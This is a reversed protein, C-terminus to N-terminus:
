SGEAIKNALLGTAVLTAAPLILATQLGLLNTLGSMLMRGVMYGFAGIVQMQSIARAASINPIRYALIAFAPPMPAICLGIVFYQLSMMVLVWSSSEIHLLHILQPAILYVGGGILGGTRVVAVVGLRDIRKGVTFRGIIQGLAFFTYGLAASSISVRYKEHLLISSWDGVSSESILSLASISALLAVIPNLKYRGGDQPRLNEPQSLVHHDTSSPLLVLTSVSVCLLTFICNAILHDRLAIHGAILSTFLSASFAGLTWSGHFTPLFHDGWVQKM